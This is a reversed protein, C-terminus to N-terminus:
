SHIEIEGITRPNELLICEIIEGNNKFRIDFIDTLVKVFSEKRVIDFPVGNYLMASTLDLLDGKMKFSEKM